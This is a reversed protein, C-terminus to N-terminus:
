PSTAEAELRCRSVGVVVPDPTHFLDSLRVDELLNRLRRHVEEIPVRIPCTVALVCCQEPQDQNCEALRFRKEELADLVDALTAEAAAPALAYGGRVGRHSAVFGKHCLDKLLNAVFPRSLHFYDAVERACAGTTKHHLYCLILLSYDLKRSLLTM